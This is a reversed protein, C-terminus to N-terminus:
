GSVVSGPRTAASEGRWGLARVRSVSSAGVRRRRTRAADDPRATRRASQWPRPVTLTAAPQTAPPRPAPHRGHGTTTRRNVRTAATRGRRCTHHALPPRSSALRSDPPTPARTQHADGARHRHRPPPAPHREDGRPRTLRTPGVRHRVRRARQARDHRRADDGPQEHQPEGSPQHHAQECRGGAGRRLAAQGLGALPNSLDGGFARDPEQHEDTEAASQHGRKGIQHHSAPKRVGPAAPDTTPSMRTPDSPTSSGNDGSLTSKAMRRGVHSAIPATTAVPRSNAVVYVATAARRSWRMTPVRCRRRHSGHAATGSASMGGNATNLM